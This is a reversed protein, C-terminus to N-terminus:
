RVLLPILSDAFLLLAKADPVRSHLVGTAILPGFDKSGWSVGKTEDGEEDEIVM